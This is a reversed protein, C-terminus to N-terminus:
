RRHRPRRRHAPLGARARPRVRGPARGRRRRRRRERGRDLRCLGAAGRDQRGGHAHGSRPRRREARELALDESQGRILDQVADLLVPLARRDAGAATLEQVAATLMANGALIAPGSGFVIWGTPRHRREIDQDMIDDHLLSFNHVLEVAVAGPVAVRAEAGVAEAGLVALTPRIAKGGSGGPVPRGDTDLWGFHYGAVTRMVPDTLRDVAARLAPEVLDRGRTLADPQVTTMRRIETTGRLPHPARDRCRSNRQPGRKGHHGALGHRDMCRRPPAGRARRRPGSAARHVRAGPRLDRPTRADRLQGAGRCAAGPAAAPRTRCPLPRPRQPQAGRGHRGRRVHHDGPVARRQHVRAVGSSQTRDFLWQVPSDVAAAFALDTVTRDYVVHVNVIPSAGLGAAGALPGEALSPAARFTEAHPMALVVVDATSRHTGGPSAVRLAGTPEVEVVRHRLCVEVGAAALAASAARSHVEGLPVHAYGVDAADARDLLGTRFVKAALALSADDPHKNLTATAVIGWLAGITASNQGHRRLFTGLSEADPAASPDLRRLALAGRAARARDLPTLLSYTALASSLHLPAPLHPSRHLRTQRGDARLVPIDLHDQLTVLETAGIRDLLWRYAECCRLFVHQGNDVSLEGRRFSFAAGGLRPRAELLTVTRGADALRLAASIGALGGGVVTVHEAM